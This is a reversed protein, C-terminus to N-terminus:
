DGELEKRAEELLEACGKGLEKKFQPDLVKWAEEKADEAVHILYSHDNDDQNSDCVVFEIYSDVSQGDHLNLGYYFSYYGDYEPGPCCPDYGADIRAKDALDFLTETAHLGFSVTAFARPYHTGDVSHGYDLEVSFDVVLAKAVDEKKLEYSM